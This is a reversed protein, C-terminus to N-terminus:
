YLNQFEASLITNSLHHKTFNILDRSPRHNKVTASEHLGEHYATLGAYGGKQKADNSADGGNNDNFGTFYWFYFGNMNNERLNKNLWAHSKKNKKAYAKAANVAAYQGFDNLGDKIGTSLGGLHDQAGDILAPHNLAYLYSFEYNARNFPMVANYPLSKFNSDAAMTDRGVKSSEGVKVVYNYKQRALAKEAASYRRLSVNLKKTNAVKSPKKVHKASSKKSKKTAFHQYHPKGLITIASKRNSGGGHAYEETFRNWSYWSDAGRDYRMNRGQTGPRGYISYYLPDYVRFYGHSYGTIVKCHNRNNDGPLQYSSYGYFLVPHGKEIYNKIQKVSSGSINTVHKDWRKGYNTLAHATIVHTFSNVGYASGGQGGRVQYSQPLHDYIYRLSVHNGEYRLLMTMSAEACGEPASIPVWQSVYPVALYVNRNMNLPKPKAPTQVPQTTQVPNTNTASTVSYNNLGNQPETLEQIVASYPNNNNSAAHAANTAAGMGALALFAISVTVWHKGIKHLVKKTSQVNFFDRTM